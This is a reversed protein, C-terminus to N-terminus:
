QRAERTDSPPAIIASNESSLRLVLAIAVCTFVMSSGGYSVLPLTLGKTPLLGMNVGMNVFAQIAIWIAIGYSSYAGFHAGRSEALYGIHFIRYILLAFLIILAVAGMMGLEEAMVAFVFDTHAEPLYFLKQVSSGLGVGWWEGRGFAILAQTLQFGSNFPDQWPDLFATLRQMRYPSSIALLAASGLALLLLGIFHLLKVGGIFLMGLSTALIVVAAGFDPELLLVLAFLFVLIIPRLFYRFRVLRPQHRVMYGALYIVMAFKAMESIQFNFFGLSIWRTSGNVKHGIGPILIALLLVLTLLLLLPAIRGWFQTPLRLAAYAIVISLLTYLSQRLLFFSPDAHRNEAVGVSASAVMILGFAIITLTLLLLPTDMPAVM